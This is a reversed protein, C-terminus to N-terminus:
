KYIEYITPQPSFSSLLGKLTPCCGDARLFAFFGERCITPELFIGRVKGWSECAGRPRNLVQFLDIGGLCISVSLLQLPCRSLPLTKWKTLISWITWDFRLETGIPFRFGIINWFIPFDPFLSGIWLIPESTIKMWVQRVDDPSLFRNAM